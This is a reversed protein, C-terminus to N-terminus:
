ETLLHCGGPKDHRPNASQQLKKQFETLAATTLKRYEKYQPAEIPKKNSTEIIVMRHDSLYPGPFPTFTIQNSTRYSHPGPHPQTPFKIHQELRFAELTTILQDADPDEPNDIHLNLDGHLIINTNESGRTTLLHTLQDIFDSNSTKHQTSAPPHYIALVTMNTPGSQVQWVAHEFSNFNTTNLQNIKFSSPTIIAIGGDKTNQRNCTCIQLGEKNFQSGEVWITDKNTDQFWTETLITIDIKLDNIANWLLDEKHKISRINVTAIREHKLQKNIPNHTQIQRLNRVDIDHQKNHNNQNTRKQQQIRNQIKLERIRRITGFPFVLLNGPKALKKLDILWATNYKFLM